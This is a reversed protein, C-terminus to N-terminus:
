RCVRSAKAKAIAAVLLERIEPLQDKRWMVDKYYDDWDDWGGGNVDIAVCWEALHNVAVDLQRRLEEITAADQEQQSVVAVAPPEPKDQLEEPIRMGYAKLFRILYERHIRRDQTGPIRYGRLRGSDFWKNVVRPAVKCMKAVQATTYINQANM